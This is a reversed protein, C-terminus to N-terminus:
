DTLTYSLFRGARFRGPDQGAVDPLLDEVEAFDLRLHSFRAGVGWTRNNQMVGVRAFAKDRYKREVGAYYYFKSREINDQIIWQLDLAALTDAQPDESACGPMALVGVAAIWAPLSVIAIIVNKM